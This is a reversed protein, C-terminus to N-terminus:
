FLRAAEALYRAARRKAVENGLHYAREETVPQALADRLTREFRARDGARVDCKRAAMVRPLLYKGKTQAIADDFDRRGREVGGPVSCRIIGLVMQAGGFDYSPDLARSRELLAIANRLDVTRSPDDRELNASSALAMGAFLLGPVVDEDGVAALRRELEAPDGAIARRLDDGLIRTAYGFARDYLG